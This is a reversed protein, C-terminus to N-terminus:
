ENRLSVLFREDRESESIVSEHYLIMINVMSEFWREQMRVQEEMDVIIGGSHVDGHHVEIIQQYVGDLEQRLEDVRQNLVTVEHQPSDLPLEKVYYQEIRNVILSRRQPDIFLNKYGKLKAEFKTLTKSSSMGGDEDDDEDESSTCEILKNEMIHKHSLDYNKRMLERLMKLDEKHEDLLEHVEKQQEATQQRRKEETLEMERRVLVESVIPDPLLDTTVVPELEPEPEPAESHSFWQGM